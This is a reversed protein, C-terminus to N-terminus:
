YVKVVIYLNSGYLIITPVFHFIFGYARYKPHILYGCLFAIRGALFTFTLFISMYYYFHVNQIFFTFAFMNVMFLLFHEVTNSLIRNGIEVLHENGSLPNRALPNILRTLMVHLLSLFLPISSVFLLKALFRLKDELEWFLLHRAFLENPYFFDIDFGHQYVKISLFLITLSIVVMKLIVWNGYSERKWESLSEREYDEKM